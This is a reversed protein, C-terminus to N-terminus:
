ADVQEAHAAAYQERVPGPIKGRDPCDVGNKKAWARIEKATPGGTPAPDKRGTGRGGAASKLRAKAEALRRELVAVERAAAIREVAAVAAERLRAIQENAKDLERQVSKDDIDGAAKLLEPIPATALDADALRPQVAVDHTTDHLWGKTNKIVGLVASRPLGTMDAVNQVTKGGALYDRVREADAGTMTSM